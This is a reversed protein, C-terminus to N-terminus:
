SLLGVFTPPAKRDLAECAGELRWARLFSKFLM